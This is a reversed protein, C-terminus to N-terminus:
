LLVGYIYVFYIIISNGEYFLSTPIVNYFSKTSQILRKKPDGQLFIQSSKRM